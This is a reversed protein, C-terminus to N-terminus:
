PSHFHTFSGLHKEDSDGDEDSDQREGPDELAVLEEQVLRERRLVLLNTALGELLGLGVTLPHNLVETTHLLLVDGGIILVLTSERRDDKM